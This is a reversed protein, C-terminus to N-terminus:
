FLFLFERIAPIIISGKQIPVKITRANMLANKLIKTEWNLVFFEFTAKTSIQCNSSFYVFNQRRFKSCSKHLLIILVNKTCIKLM